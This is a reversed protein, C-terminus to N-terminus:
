KREIANTKTDYVASVEWAPAAGDLVVKWFDYNANKRDGADNFETYGSAGLYDKAENTLYTALAPYEADCGAKLITKAALWLADYAAFSYTDAVRGLETEVAEELPEYKSKSDEERGFLPCELEGNLAVLTAKQNTLLAKNEAFASSGYWKVGESLLSYQSAEELIDAGEAFTLIYVCRDSPDSQLGDFYENVDELYSSFDTESTPYDLQLPVSNGGGNYRDTMSELLNQGWVDKRYIAAVIKKGDDKMLASIAEGQLKDSPTLRFIADSSIALSSAVSTPSLAIMNYNQVYDYIKALSASTQPGVIFKVGKSRLEQTQQLALDPDTETDYYYVELKKDPYNEQLYAKIEEEAIKITIEATEGLSNGSGTLSLLVGIKITNDDGDSDSDDDSCSALFLLFFTLFALYKM